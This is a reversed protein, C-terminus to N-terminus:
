FVEGKKDRLFYIFGNLVKLVLKFPTEIIFDMIFVLANITSFKVSLWRGLRIIPLMFINGATELIGEKSTSLKWRLAHNRIRMGFYSVLALFALFLLISVLNFHLAILIGIIFGFTVAYMLGYLFFYAFEYSSSGKAKIFITENHGEIIAIAKKIAEKTNEETFGLRRRTLYLLFLPHFLINIVLSLIIIEGAILLDIPVEIIFALIIKTCLLYVVARVGNQKVYKTEKIYCNKLYERMREEVIHLDEFIEKGGGLYDKTYERLLRISVGLDRIKNTIQWLLEDEIYIKSNKYSNFATVGFDKNNERARAMNKKLLAYQLEELSSEFLVKMVAIILINEKRIPDIEADFKINERLIQLFMEFIAIDVVNPFLLTHVEVAAMAVTWASFKKDRSLDKEVLGKYEDIIKQVENAKDEPISENPLYGAAVLEELISKGVTEKEKFLLKRKIIREIVKRNIQAEEQYDLLRRIKEYFVAAKKTISHAVIFSSGDEKPHDKSVSLRDLLIQIYPSTM